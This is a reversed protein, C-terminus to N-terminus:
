NSYEDENLLIKKYCVLVSSRYDPLRLIGRGRGLTSSDNRLSAIFVSDLRSGTQTQFDYLHSEPTLWTWNSATLLQCSWWWWQLFPNQAKQSTDSAFKLWSHWFSGHCWTPTMDVMVCPAAMQRRSALISMGVPVATDAQAIIVFDVSHTEGQWLSTFTAIRYRL